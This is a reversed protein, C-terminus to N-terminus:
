SKYFVPNEFIFRTPSISVMTDCEMQWNGLHTKIGTKTPSNNRINSKLTNTDQGRDMSPINDVHIAEGIIYTNSVTKTEGVFEKEGDTVYETETFYFGYCDSPVVTPLDTSKVQKSTSEPFFAGPFLHTIFIRKETKM